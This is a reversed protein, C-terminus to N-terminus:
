SQGTSRRGQSKKGVILCSTTWPKVAPASQTPADATAGLLQAVKDGVQMPRPQSMAGTGSALLHSELLQLAAVTAQPPPISAAMASTSRVPAAVPGQCGSSGRGPEATQTLSPQSTIAPEFPLEGPSPRAAPAPAVYSSVDYCRSYEVWTRSPGAASSGETSTTEVIKCRRLLLGEVLFDTDMELPVRNEGKLTSILLAPNWLYSLADDATRQCQMHPLCPNGDRVNSWTGNFVPLPLHLLTLYVVRELSEVPSSGSPSPSSPAMALTVLNAQCAKSINSRLLAVAFSAGTVFRGPQDPTAMDFGISGRELGRRLCEFVTWLHAGITSVPSNLCRTPVDLPAVNRLTLPADTGLNFNFDHMGVLAYLLARHSDAGLRFRSANSDWDVAAGAVCLSTLAATLSGNAPTTDLPMSIPRIAFSLRGKTASERQIAATTDRVATGLLLTIAEKFLEEKYLLELQALGLRKGSPSDTGEVLRIAVLLSTGSPQQSSM